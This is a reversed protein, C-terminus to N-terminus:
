YEEITRNDFDIYYAAETGDEFSVAYLKRGGKSGICIPSWAIQKGITEEIWNRLKMAREEKGPFLRGPETNTKNM